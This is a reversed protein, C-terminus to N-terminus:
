ILVPDFLIPKMTTHCKAGEGWLLFARTETCLKCTRRTRTHTMEPCEPKRRSDLFKKLAENEAIFQLSKWLLPQTAGADRPGAPAPKSSPHLTFRYDVSSVEDLKWWVILMSLGPVVVAAARRSEAGSWPKRWVGPKDLGPVTPSGWVRSFTERQRRFVLPQIFGVRYLWQVLHLPQSFRNQDSSWEVSTTKFGLFERLQAGFPKQQKKTENQALLFSNKAEQLKAKGDCTLRKIRSIPNCQLHGQRKGWCLSRRLVDRVMEAKIVSERRRKKNAAWESM